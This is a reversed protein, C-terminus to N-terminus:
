DSSLPWIWLGKSPSLTAETMPKLDVRAYQPARVHYIYQLVSRLPLLYYQLFYRLPLLYYQLFYRLPLLYYQLFYRLPLLYYQLFYRLPM